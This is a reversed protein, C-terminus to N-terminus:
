IQEKNPDEIEIVEAYKYNPKAASATEVNTQTSKFLAEDSNDAKGLKEPNKIEMKDYEITTNKTDLAVAISFYTMRRLIDYGLNVKLDDPGLSFVFANEQFMKGNPSDDSLTLSGAWGISLFKNLRIAERIYVNSHGYRYTDFVPMPTGDSYASAFYGIDQMWYKYQTHLRPGIRGIFQTDGTGYVAASGQMVIGLDIMKREAKNEHKFISQNLEAMYRARMTGIGSSKIHETHMNWEGDHAYAISARHRFSLNKNEALFDPLVKAKDYVLEAMYKPMRRGLFWDDIYANSAYQLFLNDDLQQKGDIVWVNNASGYMIQTENFSSKFKAAGGFGFKKNYNIMPILKITSGHPAGFVIGPGFFMGFRSRSGFEPYNAEFYDRNKNTYATLSPLTMIYKDKYFFEADKIQFRDNNDTAHINIESANIKMKADDGSVWTYKDKDDIIMKTFDPGVMRSAFVFKNSSESNSYGDTLILKGEESEAKRATIKMSASNATVNDMFMNEENMNIQIYDGNIPMGDKTVVVNNMAKLINSNRNYIMKDAKITINQPVYTLIPNGIAEVDGTEENTQVEDCDLQFETSTVQEKVVGELEQVNEPVTETKSINESKGSSKNETTDVDAEGEDYELYKIGLDEVEKKQKQIDEEAWKQERLKQKEENALQHKMLVKKIRLRTEKFWPMHKTYHGEKVKDDNDSNDQVKVDVDPVVASQFYLDNSNVLENYVEEVQQACHACPALSLILLTLLIKKM